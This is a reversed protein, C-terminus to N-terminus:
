LKIDRLESPELTKHVKDVFGVRFKGSVRALASRVSRGLKADYYGFKTKLLQPWRMTEWMKKSYTGSTRERILYLLFQVKEKESLDTYVKKAKKEQKKTNVTEAPSTDPLDPSTNVVLPQPERNISSVTDGLAAVVVRLKEQDKVLKHFENIITQNGSAYVLTKLQTQGM